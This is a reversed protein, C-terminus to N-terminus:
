FIVTQAFAGASSGAAVRQINSLEEDGKAKIILQKVELKRGDVKGKRRKELPGHRSM